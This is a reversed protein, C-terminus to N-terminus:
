GFTIRYSKQGLDHGVTRYVYWNVDVGNQTQKHVAPVSSGDPGAWDTVAEGDADFFKVPGFVAPVMFYGYGVFDDRFQDDSVGISQEFLTSYDETAEQGTCYIPGSGLVRVTKTGQVVTNEYTFEAAITFTQNVVANQVLVTGDSFMHLNLSDTIIQWVPTVNVGQGEVIGSDPTYAEASYREKVGIQITDPGTIGLGIYAADVPVVTVAMSDTVTYGGCSWVATITFQMDQNLKCTVFGNEDVVVNDNDVTWDSSVLLENKCQKFLIAQSFSAIQTSYIVANGIIRSSQPVDPGKPAVYRVTVAYEATEQFYTARIMVQMDYDVPRGTVVGYGGIDAAIFEANSDLTYIEWQPHVTVFSGDEYMATATLIIRDLSDVTDPGTIMLGTISNRSSQCVITKTHQYVKTGEMYSIQLNILSEEPEDILLEGDILTAWDMEPNLAWIPEIQVVRGDTYQAYAKYTNVNNVRVTDPGVILLQQLTIPPRSVTIPLVQTIGQYSARIEANLTDRVMGAQYTGQPTISFQTTFWEPVVTTSTGDAMIALCTYSAKEQEEVNTPGIIVLEALQQFEPYVTVPHQAEMVVQRFGYQAVIQAETEGNVLRTSVLGNDIEAIPSTIKWDSIVDATSGDSFHATAYMQYATGEKLRNEGSISLGTLYVSPDVYRLKVHKSAPYVINNITVKCYIVVEQDTTLTRPHLTSGVFYAYPSLVKLDTAVADSGTSHHVMVVFDGTANSLIEEPGIIELMRVDQMGLWVNVNKTITQGRITATLTVLSDQEFGSFTAHGQKISVLGDHSSTWDNVEFEQHKAMVRYTASEGSNVQDPGEITFTANELSYDADCVLRRVPQRYVVGQLGFDETNEVEISFFFQDIVLNIPALSFFASLFRDKLTTGTPLVIRQDGPVKQMELNIHTVKYWTGGDIRMAGLPEEYFTAYDETYLEYSVVRRGLLYGILRTASDLGTLQHILPLMYASNYLREPDVILDPPLTIGLDKIAQKMFVQPTSAKLDRIDIVHTLPDRVQYTMFDQIAELLAGWIPQTRIFEVDLESFDIKNM